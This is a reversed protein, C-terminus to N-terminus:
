DISRQKIGEKSGWVNCKSLLTLHIKLMNCQRLLSPRYSTLQILQLTVSSFKAWSELYVQSRWLDWSIMIKNIIMISISSRIYKKTHATQFNIFQPYPSAPSMFLQEIIHYVAHSYFKTMMSNHTKEASVCAILDSSVNVNWASTPHTLYLLNGIEPLLNM